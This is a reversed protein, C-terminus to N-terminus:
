GILAITSALIAAAVVSATPLALTPLRIARLMASTAPLMTQRHAFTLSKTAFWAAFVACTGLLGTLSNSHGGITSQQVAIAALTTLVAVVFCILIRVATKM